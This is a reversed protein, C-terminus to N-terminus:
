VKHGVYDSLKSTDGALQYTHHSSDTLNYEGHTGNLCGQITTEHDSASKPENQAFTWGASLLLLSFLFTKVVIGGPCGAFQLSASRILIRNQKERQSLSFSRVKLRPDVSILASSFLDCM